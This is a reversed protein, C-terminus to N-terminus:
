PFETVAEMAHVVIVRPFSVKLPAHAFNLQEYFFCAFFQLIVVSSLGAREM